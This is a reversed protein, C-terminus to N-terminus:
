SLYLNNVVVSPQEAEDPLDWFLDLQDFHKFRDVFGQSPRMLETFVDNAKRARRLKGVNSRPSRPNPKARRLKRGVSHNVEKRGDLPHPPRAPNVQERYLMQTRVTDFDYGRGQRQMSKMVNNRAETPGNTVRHEFYNFVEARWNDVARLLEHFALKIELPHNRVRHAWDDYRREAERRDHLQWINFFEEKFEYVVKIQAHQEQWEKLTRQERETLRHPRKLLLFRSRKGKGKRSLNNPMCQTREAEPLEDRIYQRMAMVAKNALRLVHFKDIVIKATPLFRRVVDRYPVCMDMVVAKVQEPQPLQILYRSVTLKDKKPLLEFTRHRELDIIVFRAVGDIYCEDVGLYRPTSGCALATKKNQELRRGLETFIDRVTQESVGADAAVQAFPQMKMSEREIYSILRKTMGRRTSIGPLPQQWTHQCLQCLYRQWKFRIRSRRDLLPQDKVTRIPAGHRIFLFGACEPCREPPALTVEAEILIDFETKKFSLTRLEPLDLLDAGNGLAGDCGALIEVM